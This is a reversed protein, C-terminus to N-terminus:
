ANLTIINMLLEMRFLVSLATIVLGGKIAIAYEMKVYVM